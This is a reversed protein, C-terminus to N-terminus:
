CTSPRLNVGIYLLRLAQQCVHPPAAAAEQASATAVAVWVLLAVASALLADFPAGPGELQRGKGAGDAQALKPLVTDGAVAERIAHRDYTYQSCAFFQLLSATDPPTSM